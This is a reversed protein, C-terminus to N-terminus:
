HVRIPKAAQMAAANAVKMERPKHPRRAWHRSAAYALLHGFSVGHAECIDDISESGAFYARALRDWDVIRRV